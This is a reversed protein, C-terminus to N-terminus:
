LCKEEVFEEGVIELNTDNFMYEHIDTLYGELDNENQYNKIVTYSFNGKKIVFMLQTSGIHVCIISDIDHIFAYRNLSEDVITITVNM